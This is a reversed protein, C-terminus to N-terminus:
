GNLNMTQTDMRWVSAGSSGSLIFNPNANQDVLLAPFALKDFPWGLTNFASWHVGGDISQYVGGSELGVFLHNANLRVGSISKVRANPLGTGAQIWTAGGDDSRVVGQNNYGVAYLRSAIDAAGSWIGLVPGTLGTSIPSAWTGGSDTSKRIQGSGLGAALHWTGNSGPSKVTLSYVNAGGMFDTSWPAPTMPPANCNLNAQATKYLGSATFPGDSALGAFIQGDASLLAHVSANAPFSGDFAHWEWGSETHCALPNALVKVGAGETGAYLNGNGDFALSRVNRARPDTSLGDHKASWSSGGDTSLFIGGGKTAAAVYSGNSPHQALATIYQAYMGASKQQIGSTVEAVGGGQSGMMLNTGTKEFATIHPYDTAGPYSPSIWSGGSGGGNIFLSQARTGVYLTGSHIYLQSIDASPALSSLAGGGYESLGTLPAINLLGSSYKIQPTNGNQIAVILNSILNNDVAVGRIESSGFDYLTEWNAGDISRYLKNVAGRSAAFFRNNLPLLTDNSKTIYHIDQGVLLNSPGNVATWNVGADLSQRIGDNTGAYVHTTNDHDIFLQNVRTIPATVDMVKTWVDGSNITKYIGDTTAVYAISDDLAVLATISLKDLGQNALAWSDGNNYSVYVGGTETGAYLFTASGRVLGTIRGGVPGTAPQWDATRLPTFNLMLGTASADVSSLEALRPPNNIQQLAQLLHSGAQTKDLSFSVESSTVSIGPIVLEASTLDDYRVRIDEGPIAGLIKGSLTGSNLRYTAHQGTNLTLVEIAANIETASSTQAQTEIWSALASTNIMGPHFAYARPVAVFGTLADVLAQLKGLDIQSILHIRRMEPLANSLNLAEIIKFVVGTRYSVELSTLVDNHVLPFAAEINTNPVSENLEDLGQVAIMRIAGEPVDSFTLTSAASLSCRNSGNLSVIGNTPAELPYIDTPIGPGFLRVRVQTMNSTPGQESDGNCNIAQTQFGQELMLNLKVQYTGNANRRTELQGELAPTATTQVSKQLPLAPTLVTPSPVQQCSVLGLTLAFSALFRKM